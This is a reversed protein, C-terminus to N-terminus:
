SVNVNKKFGTLKRIKQSTMKKGAPPSNIKNKRHNM